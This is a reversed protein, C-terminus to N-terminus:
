LDWYPLIYDHLNGDNGVRELLPPEHGKADLIFGHDLFTMSSTALFLPIGFSNGSLVYHRILSTILLESDQM